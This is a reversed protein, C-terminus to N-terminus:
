CKWVVTLNRRTNVDKLKKRCDCSLDEVVSELDVLCSAKGTCKEKLQKEMAMKSSKYHFMNYFNCDKDINYPSYQAKTYDSKKAAEM